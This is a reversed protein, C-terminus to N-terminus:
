RRTSAAVRILMYPHVSHYGNHVVFIVFVRAIHIEGIPLEQIVGGRRSFELRYHFYRDGWSKDYEKGAAPEHDTRLSLYEGRITETSSERVSPGLISSSPPGKSWRRYLTNV